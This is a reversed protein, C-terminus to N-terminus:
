QTVSAPPLTPVNGLRLALVIMIVGFAIAYGAIIYTITVLGAGPFILMLIGFLISIVGSLGLWFENDIQKRLEIAAIVEMIGTLIAWAAIITLLAILTIGPSLFTFIGAAIGIIGELLLVWWRQNTTRGQFAHIIDMVGDVLVYAGFLIVLTQITIGPFLLTLIGFIIAVVGRLGLLWRAGSYSEAM